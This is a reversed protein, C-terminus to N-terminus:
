QRLPFRLAPSWETVWGVPKSQLGPKRRAWQPWDERELWNRNNQFPQRVMTRVEPPLSDALLVTERLAGAEQGVYEIARDLNTWVRSALFVILYVLVVGLPTLTTPTIAKLDQAIARRSLFAALSFIAAMVFYCVGFALLTIVPISQAEICLM